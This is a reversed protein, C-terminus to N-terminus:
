RCKDKHNTIYPALASKVYTESFYERWKRIFSEDGTIGFYASCGFIAFAMSYSFKEVPTNTLLEGESIGENLIQTLHKAILNIRNQTPATMPTLTYHRTWHYMYKSGYYSLTLDIWDSFYSDIRSLVTGSGHPHLSHFSEYFKINDIEEFLEKLSGFYYYFNGSSMQCAHVIDSIRIADHGKERILDEAVQIIKKRTLAAQEKRTTM